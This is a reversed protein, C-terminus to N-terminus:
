GLNTKIYDANLYKDLEESVVKKKNELVETQKNYFDLADEVTEKGTLKLLKEVLDSMDSEITKIESELGIKQNNLKTVNEQLENFKSKIEKVDVM